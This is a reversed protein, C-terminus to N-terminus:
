NKCLKVLNSEDEKLRLDKTEIVVILRNLVVSCSSYVCLVLWSMLMCGEERSKIDKPIVNTMRAEVEHHDDTVFDSYSICIMALSTISQVFFCLLWSRMRSRKRRWRCRMLTERSITDQADNLSHQQWFCLSPSHLFPFPFLLFSFSLSILILSFVCVEDHLLLWISKWDPFCLWTELFDKM